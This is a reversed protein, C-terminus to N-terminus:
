PPPWQEFNHRPCRAYGGGGGCGHWGDASCQRSCPTERVLAEPSNAVGSLTPRPRAGHSTEHATAVEWQIKRTNATKMIKGAAPLPRAPRGEPLTARKWKSHPRSSVGPFCRPDPSSVGQRQLRPPHSIHPRPSPRPPGLTGCYLKPLAARRQTHAGLRALRAAPLNRTGYKSLPKSLQHTTPQGTAAPGPRRSSRLPPTTQRFRCPEPLTTSFTVWM